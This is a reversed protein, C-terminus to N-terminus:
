EVLPGGAAPSAGSVRCVVRIVPVHHGAEKAGDPSFGRGAYFRRARTNGEAVWLSVIEGAPVQEMLASGVGEGWRQPDVYLTYVESEGARDEDRSPGSATFGAIDGEVKAVWLTGRGEALFRAWQDQRDEVTRRTTLDLGEKAADWAAVHVRAVDDIDSTTAQRILM